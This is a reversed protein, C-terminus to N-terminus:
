PTSGGARGALLQRLRERLAAQGGAQFAELGTPGALAKMIEM